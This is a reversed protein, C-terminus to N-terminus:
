FGPVAPTYFGRGSGAAWGSKKNERSHNPKKGAIGTPVFSQHILSSHISAGFIHFFVCTIYGDIDTNNILKQRKNRTYYELWIRNTM